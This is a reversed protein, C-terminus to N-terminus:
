VLAHSCGQFLEFCYVQKHYYQEVKTQISIYRLKFKRVSSNYKGVQVISDTDNDPGHSIRASVWLNHIYANTSEYIFWFLASQIKSYDKGIHMWWQQQQYHRKDTGSGTSSVERNKKINRMCESINCNIVFQLHVKLQYNSIFQYKQKGYNNNHIM